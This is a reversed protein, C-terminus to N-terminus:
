NHSLNSSNESTAAPTMLGFAGREKLLPSFGQIMIPSAIAKVPNTSQRRVEWYKSKLRFFNQTCPLTNHLVRMIAIFMESSINTNIDQYDSFTLYEKSGFIKDIFETIIRQEDKRNQCTNLKPSGDSLLNDQSDSSLGQFPVYSLLIRVDEKIIRNKDNFDYRLSTFQNLSFRVNQFDNGNEARSYQPLRL